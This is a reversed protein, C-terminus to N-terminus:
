SFVVQHSHIGATASSDTSSLKTVTQGASMQGLEAMTVAVTHPHDATGAINLTVGTSNLQASTIIATHGHNDAISGVRSGPTPTPASPSSGSSSSSCGMVTVTVGSLLALIAASTFERRDIPEEFPGFLDM